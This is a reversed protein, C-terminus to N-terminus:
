CTRGLMACYESQAKESDTRTDVDVFLSIIGSISVILIALIVLWSFSEKPSTKNTVNLTEFHGVKDRERLLHLRYGLRGKAAKLDTSISYKRLGAMVYEENVQSRAKKSLEQFGQDVYHKFVVDKINNCINYGRGSADVIETLATRDQISELSSENKIEFVVNNNILYNEYLVDTFTARSYLFDKIKDILSLEGFLSYADVAYFIITIRMEEKIQQLTPDPM